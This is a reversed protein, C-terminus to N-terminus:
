FIEKELSLGWCQDGITHGRWKIERTTAAELRTKLHFSKALWFEDRKKNGHLSIQSSGKVTLEAPEDAFFYFQQRLWEFKLYLTVVCLSNLTRQVPPFDSRLHLNLQKKKLSCVFLCFQELWDTM